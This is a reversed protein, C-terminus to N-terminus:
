ISDSGGAYKLKSLKEAEARWEARYLKTFHALFRDLGFANIKMVTRQWLMAGRNLYRKNLPCLAQLGMFWVTMVRENPCILEVTEDPMKITFALWSKGSLGFERKDYYREFRSSTHSGHFIALVDALLLKNGKNGFLSKDKQKRMLLETGDESVQVWRKVPKSDETLRILWFGQSLLRLLQSTEQREKSIRQWTEEMTESRTQRTKRVPVLDKTMVRPRKDPVADEEYVIDEGTWRVRMEQEDVTITRSRVFRFNVSSRNAAFAQAKNRARVAKKAVMVSDRAPKVKAAAPGKAASASAAASAASDHTSHREVDDADDDDDDSESSFAEDENISAVPAGRSIVSTLRGRARPARSHTAADERGDDNFTEFSALERTLDDIPASM